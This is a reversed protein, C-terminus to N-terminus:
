HSVYSDRRAYLQHAENDAQTPNKDDLARPYLKFARVVNYELSFLFVQAQMYIWFLLVLVVAFQANLGTYRSLQTTILYGGVAQLLQLGFAAILAGPVNARTRKLASSGYTFIGWFVAFLVIFSATGIVIRVPPSYSSSASYGSLVASIILGLGAFIIIGFSRLMSVPFGARKKRPVAWVVHLANQVSDAIGRAGYFAVLIGIILAIGSRSPTHLSAALSEGIAPFYSTVAVTIRDKLETNGQSVIQAFATAVILLPFLSLFGYYTMLAALHGGGDEGFKKIISYPLSLWPHRRQLADIHAIVKEIINQKKLTAKSMTIM